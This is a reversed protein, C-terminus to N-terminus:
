VVAHLGGGGLPLRMVVADDNRVIEFTEGSTIGGLKSTVDQAPAERALLMAMSLTSLMLCYREYVM